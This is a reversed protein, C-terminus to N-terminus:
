LLRYWPSGPAPWGGPGRYGGPIKEALAVSAWALLAFSLCVTRRNM